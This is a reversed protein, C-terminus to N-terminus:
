SIFHVLLLRITNINITDDHSAEQIDQTFCLQLKPGVIVDSTVLLFKEKPLDFRRVCDRKVREVIEIMNFEYNNNNSARNTAQEYELNIMNISEIALRSRWHTDNLWQNYHNSQPRNPENVYYFLLRDRTSAKFLRALAVLSFYHNLRFVLRSENTAKEVYLDNQSRAPMFLYILGIKSTDVSACLHRSDLVLNLFDNVNEQSLNIDPKNPLIIVVVFICFYFCVFHNVMTYRNFNRDSDYPKSSYIRDNGRSGEGLYCLIFSFYLFFVLM